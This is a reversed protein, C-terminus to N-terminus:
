ESKAKNTTDALITQIVSKDTEKLSDFDYKIASLQKKASEKSLIGKNYQTIILFLKYCDVTDTITKWPRLAIKDKCSLCADYKNGCMICTARSDSM